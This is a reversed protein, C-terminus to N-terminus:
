IFPSAAPPREITAPPREFGANFDAPQTADDKRVEPAVEVDVKTAGVFQLEEGVCGEAEAGLIQVKQNVITIRTYEHTAAGQDNRGVADQLGQISKDAINLNANAQVVKDTLCNLRIVDKQKRSEEAMGEVRQTTQQMNVRYGQSQTLMDQPTLDSRQPITVDASPTDGAPAEAGVNAPTQAMAVQSFFTAGVLIKVVRSM